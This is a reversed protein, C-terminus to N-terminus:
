KWVLEQYKKELECAAMHIDYGDKKLYDVYNTRQRKRSQKYEMLIEEIWKKKSLEVFKIADGHNVEQPVNESAVSHLGNAQAEILVIGLGEFLSPLVFLDMCSYLMAVDERNGLILVRDAIGCKNIKTEIKERLKGDGVLLLKANPIENAIQRFVEILFEHNKQDDFRWPM